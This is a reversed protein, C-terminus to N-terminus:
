YNEAEEKTMFFHIGTSCENWRNEDYNKIVITEGKKYVFYSDHFSVASEIEENHKSYINLVKVKSARCKNTTASSRLSDETILLKVITHRRCKKWGVFSGEEPCQLSFFKTEENVKINSLNINEMSINSLNAGFLNADELNAGELNADYLYAGKLNTGKLNTGFLNAGFLDTYELNAGELNAGKLNAGTLDAGSLDVGELNIGPLNADELSINSLDAGSLNTNGQRLISIIEYKDM